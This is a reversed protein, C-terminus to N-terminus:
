YQQPRGFPRMQYPSQPRRQQFPQAQQRQQMGMSPGIGGGQMPGNGQMPGFSPQQPPPGMQQPLAQQIPQQPAPQQQFQQPPPQQMFQQKAMVIDRLSQQPDKPVPGQEQYDRPPEPKPPLAGANMMGSIQNGFQQMMGPMGGPGIGQKQAPGQQSEYKQIPKQMQNGFQSAIGQGLSAFTNQNQPRNQNNNAGM